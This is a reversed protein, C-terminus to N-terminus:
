TAKEVVNAEYAFDFSMHSLTNLFPGILIQPLYGKFFKFHYPTGLCVM